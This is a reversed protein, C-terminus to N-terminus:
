YYVELHCLFCTAARSYLFRGLPAFIRWSPPGLIPSQPIMAGPRGRARGTFHGNSRPYHGISLPFPFIAFPFPCTAFALPLYFAFPLHSSRVRGNARRIETTLPSNYKNKNTTKRENVIKMNNWKTENEDRKTGSRGTKNRKTGNTGNRGNTGSPIHQM